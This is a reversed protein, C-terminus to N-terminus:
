SRQGLAVLAQKEARTNVRLRQWDDRVHVDAFVGAPDEHFHLFASSKRYFRPRAKEKLGELGRIRVPLEALADIAAPGAHKM